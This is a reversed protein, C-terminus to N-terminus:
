STGFFPMSSPLSCTLSHQFAQSNVCSSEQVQLVHQSSFACCQQQTTVQSETLCVELM